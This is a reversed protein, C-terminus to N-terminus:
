TFRKNECFAVIRINLTQRAHTLCFGEVGCSRANGHARQCIAAATADAEVALILVARQLATGTIGLCTLGDIHLEIDALTHEEGLATQFKEVVLRALSHCQGAHALVDPRERHRLVSDGSSCGKVAVGSNWRQPVTRHCISKSFAIARLLIWIDDM